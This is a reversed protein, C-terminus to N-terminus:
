IFVYPGTNDSFKLTTGDVIYMGSAKEANTATNYTSTTTNPMVYGFRGGSYQFEQMYVTVEHGSKSETVKYIQMQTPISAGTDDSLLYTDLSVVSTLGYGRDKADLKVTFTKPASNYRGLLRLCIIRITALAGKNLWRCYISRISSENYANEGEADTDVIISINDYNSETKYDVTPDSQKSYFRVQTIREEDNDEQSIEKINDRDTISGVEEDTFPHSVQLGIKQNVEDWWISLGLDALEGILQQVGTPTSIVTDLKVSSMWRTIEAEWETTPCFAPDVKAYTVLLDYIVTDVRQRVIELAEQFTDGDSHTGATTGYLGRGSLTITDSSRTYRVLESGIKALGSTKYEVGIGEPLVKFTQGAEETIDVDLTGRSTFPAVAKKDDALTLIDKGSITVSGDSDPGSMNTCIFHRTQAVSITGNSQIYGDIVRLPRGAYYPFRSKLRSFFTGRDRPTYGIGSSQAAGSIREKQYKDLYIDSDIFDHLNVEVTARKGFSSMKSNGGAINVTSSFASVGGEKLCPYALFGKPLNPRNNIFRLTKTGKSFNTKDQCTKFTNFCKLEGTTGLIATCSGVGYSLTCYDIDLEVYQIPERTEMPM